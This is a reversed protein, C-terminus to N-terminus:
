EESPMEHELLGDPPSRETGFPAGAPTALHFRTAVDALTFFMLLAVFVLATAFVLRTAGGSEKLHMFILAVLASKTVAIALAIPLAWAGLHMSGTLYTLGTFFLLVVWVIVYPIASHGHEQHPTAPQRASEAM